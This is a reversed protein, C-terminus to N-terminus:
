REPNGDSLLFDGALEVDRFAGYLEVNGVQEIFKTDAPAGVEDEERELATHGL